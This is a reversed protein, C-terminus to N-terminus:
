LSSQHKRMVPNRFQQLVLNLRCLEIVEGGGWMGAHSHGEKNSTVRNECERDGYKPLREQAKEMWGRERERWVVMVMNSVIVVINSVIM